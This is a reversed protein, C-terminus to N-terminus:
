FSRTEWVDHPHLLDPAGERLFRAAAADGLLTARLFATALGATRAHYTPDSWRAGAGPEDAFSAHVAGNLVALAGPNRAAEFPERRQAARVGEIWGDDNSGTVHLMPAVFGAYALRPPLGQAPIPSLAIGAKLRPDPLNLGRDGGPLRQGLMAQVTWAGFSHGAIALRGADAQPPLNDLAFRVDYLRDLAVNVDFAAAALAMRDGGHRWLSDDSGPHQLHIALFGARALAGGLYALGHRSGGLGHSLLVTPFPGRGAPIRLLVPIERDRAPDRWHNESETPPPPAAEGPAPRLLPAAALAGLLARRGGTTLGEGTM